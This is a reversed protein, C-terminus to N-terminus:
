FDLFVLKTSLSSLIIWISTPIARACISRSDSCDGICVELLRETICEVETFLSLFLYVFM